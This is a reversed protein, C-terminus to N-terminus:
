RIIKRVWKDGCVIYVTTSSPPLITTDQGPQKEKEMLLRGSIDYIRITEKWPSDVFLTSGQIYAKVEENKVSNVSTAFSVTIECTARKNGNRSTVTIISTGAANATVLGSNSVSAVAGDSSGWTVSRDTADAPTLTATLQLTEGESLQKKTINLSIGNVPVSTADSQRVTIVSSATLGGEKTTATIIATGPAKTTVIGVLTGTTSSRLMGKSVFGGEKVTAVAEDSSSWIVEETAIAPLIAMELRFTESQDLIVKEDNSHNLSINQILIVTTKKLVDSEKTNGQNDRAIVKYCYTAGETLGTDKFKTDTVSSAITSYTENEGAVARQVDYSVATGAPEWSIEIESSSLTKGSLVPAELQAPAQKTFVVTVVSRAPIYITGLSSFNGEATKDLTHSASTEYVAYSDPQPLGEIVPDITKGSIGANVFVAIVQQKSDVVPSIYATGMLSSLSTAGTLDVRKYGPRIFRSYNGLAWLNAKASVPGEKLLQEYTGPYDTNDPKLAVLLFRNKHSWREMDMATWYSWSSANAYAMDSHIIKAMQIAVDMYDWNVPFNDINHLENSALLSWETQFVKLDYADAKSAVSERVNRINNNKQDVWYSHGAIVPAVRDLNGIFNESEPSFFAEIQNSRAAAGGGKTEYLYTWDGSEPVIIKSNLNKNILTKNLEVVLKKIENNQWQSGEQGGTWDYQPENVPSIYSFDIGKNEKFYSVVEAIYGAFDAYHEDKLNSVYSAGNDRFGKGNRTYLTPPSNSFMVFSECGYEGAKQLFYQQGKHKDWDYSGDAKLFCEARRSADDIGSAAGQETTGAGLNFRWMSLGIGEPNGSVDLEQSFLYRAIDEKGSGNWQGVFNGMWCDSAGFGEITQFSKAANITVPIGASQCDPDTRAEPSDNLIMEDIYFVKGQQQGRDPFTVFRIEKVTESLYSKLDLVYDFWQNDPYGTLDEAGLWREADPTILDLEFEPLDTKYIMVHLYRHEETLTIGNIGLQLGKWWDTPETAVTAKYAKESKNLCGPDPNWVIEGASLGDTNSIVPMASGDEFDALIGPAPTRPVATNNVLIEDIYVTKNRNVDEDGHFAIRLSTISQGDLSEGKVDDLDIIYDFWTNNQPHTTSAGVWKDNDTHVDWEFAPIDTRMLIHMFRNASTAVTVDDVNIELGKWWDQTSGATEIYLCKQTRNIGENEPNLVIDFKQSGGNNSCVPLIGGAEFDGLLLSSVTRPAVNNSIVIEDIYITKNRNSAENCSFALRLETIKQGHLNSEGNKFNGLDVVYDFWTDDQPHTTIAGAWRDGDTFVNWEFKPIDTRMFIHLYRNQSIDVTVDEIDITLGKWWGQDSGSTVAQLVKESKNIGNRGPNDAVKLSQCAGNDTYVPIVGGEEFDASNVPATQAQSNVAHLCCACCVIFLFKKM